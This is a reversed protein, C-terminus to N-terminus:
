GIFLEPCDRHRNSPEGSVKGAVAARVKELLATLAFPEPLYDVVPPEVFGALAHPYGATATLIVPIGHAPIAERLWALIGDGGGWRLELDLVLAAPTVQRLKRLCDLGDSSTEVAYGHEALFQRYLDCLAADGQAILLTQALVIAQRNM